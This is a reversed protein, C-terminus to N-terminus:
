MYYEDDYEDEPCNIRIQSLVEKKINEEEALILQRRQSKAADLQLCSTDIDLQTIDPDFGDSPTPIAQKVLEEAVPLSMPTQYLFGFSINAANLSTEPYNNAIESAIKAETQNTQICRQPEM